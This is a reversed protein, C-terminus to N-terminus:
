NRIHFSKESGTSPKPSPALNKTLERKSNELKAKVEQQCKSCYRGSAISTGCVECPIGHNPDTFEIRGSRILDLLIREEVGTGEVIQQFNSTPSEMIFQRIKNFCEEFYDLCAPCYTKNTIANYLKKCRRCYKFDMSM